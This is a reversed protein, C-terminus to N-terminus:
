QLGGRRFGVGQAEEIEARAEALEQSIGDISSIILVGDRVCYALGRQKLLLRLSTRLPIGELSIMITSQLSVDAEELGKPDVYIPIAQSKPGTTAQQIYKLVDDLAIENTFPMTIPEDLIKWVAKNRPSDDHKALFATEQAISTLKRRKEAAVMAPTEPMMGGMPVMGGMGGAMGMGAGTGGMRGGMRSMMGATPNNPQQLPAAQKAQPQPLDKVSANKKAKFVDQSTNNGGQGGGAQYEAVAVATTCAAVVLPIVISKTTTWFMASLAGQVLIKVSTSLTTISALSAGTAVARAAALTATELVVPAAARGGSLTLQSLLATGTLAVGRRTLRKSLLTKARALRGKVTGLPCGLRMAAQEHTLGQMYCLVIATRYRDPLRDLETHLLLQTEGADHPDVVTPSEVLAIADASGGVPARKAALARAKLSVRYAVGYLWNGLLDSRRLTRAKRVLVLFTAQFADDVDNPDRLLRRCVGLVMGGHRAVLTEFAAEDRDAVFRNLLEGDSVGATTGSTFLRSLDAALSGSSGDRSLAM